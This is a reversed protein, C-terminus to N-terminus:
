KFASEMELKTQGAGQMDDTLDYIKLKELYLEKVRPYQEIGKNLMMIASNKSESDLLIGSLDIYDQYTKPKFNKVLEMYKNYNISDKLTYYVQALNYYYLVRPDPMSIARNINLIAKNFDHLNFYCMGIYNYIESDTDSSIASNFTDLAEQIDENQYDIRGLEIRYERCNCMLIAKYISEKAKTFNNM